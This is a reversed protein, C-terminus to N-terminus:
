RSKLYVGFKSTISEFTTEFTQYRTDDQKFLILSEMVERQQGFNHQGRNTKYKLYYVRYYANRDVQARLQVDMAERMRPDQEDYGFPMYQSASILERIAWEGSQRSHQANQTKRPTPFTAIDAANPFDVIWSLDLQIPATNYYDRPDFSCDGYVTDIYGATIRLGALISSNYAVISPVVPNWVIGNWAPFISFVPDAYSLCGDVLPTNGIQTITYTDACATGATLTISGTVYGASAPLSNLYTTIPTLQNAGGSCNVRDAVIYIQRTAYYTSGANTWAISGGAPPVCLAPLGAIQVFIDAVTPTVVTGVNVTIQVQAVDGNFTSIYKANATTASYATSIAQAYTLRAAATSVTDTPLLPRSVIYVDQATTLTYTSNPCTTCSSAVPISQAALYAAPAITGPSYIQYTSIGNIYTLRTVPYSNGVLEQIQAQDRSLGSDPVALQWITYYGEPASITATVTSTYGSGGASITVASVAGGTLTTTATAGTGQGNASTFTVTPTNIYGAGGVLTGHTTNVAAATLNAVATAPTTAGGGTLTVTPTSTFASGAATVTFSTIVGGAVAATATAGTGGGGTIAVTPASTYGAGQTVVAISAVTTAALAVVVTAPVTPPVYTSIVAQAQIGLEKLEPHNNVNDAFQKTYAVVDLPSVCGTSCSPDACPATTLSVVHELTKGFVRYVPEGYLNIRLQYDTDCNFTFNNAAASVGYSNVSGSGDFGMVWVENQITQPLSVEFSDIDVGRFFWSKLSRQMGAFFKTLLDRTHYSGMGIFFESGNGTPTAVNWTQRDFISVEGSALDGTHGSTAVGNNCVFIPLNFEYNASM